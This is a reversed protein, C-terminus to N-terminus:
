VSDKLSPKKILHYNLIDIRFVENKFFLLHLFTSNIISKIGILQSQFNIFDNYKYNM